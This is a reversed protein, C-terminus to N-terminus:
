DNLVLMFVKLVVAINTGDATVLKTKREKVPLVNEDTAAAAFAYLVPKYCVKNLHDGDHLYLLM